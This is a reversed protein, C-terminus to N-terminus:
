FGTLTTKGIVTGSEQLRHAERLNAANVPGLDKTATTTLTGADVLRAVRTLIGHQVDQDATRFMSRTFMFEWHRSSVQNPATGVSVAAAVAVSRM